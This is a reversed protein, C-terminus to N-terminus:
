THIELIDGDQVVHDKGVQQGDYSGRGWIRAHRFSAALDRHVLRAIEDV